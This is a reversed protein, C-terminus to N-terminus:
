STIEILEYETSGIGIEVAHKLQKMGDREPHVERFIDKGAAEITLDLCAKDLAVPDVSALIGIDPAIRPDDQALCDCEKTIKIAFNIHISEGKRNDLVAKAYETMKEQITDGGAEWMVGMAGTPCAAICSACGICKEADIRAKEKIIVIADAPCVKVCEGCGICTDVFVTPTMDTHQELKGERTACGMGINKLVGGFGTMMHGKFHAVSILVDADTFLRVVKATKVFKQNIAFRAANDEKKDDPIFVEAGAKRPTFGHKRALKLHDSCNMRKGKYLTNTDSLAVEVGAEALKESLVKVCDPKVFGTNGEEGFHIKIVAKDGNSIGDLIGSKDLLKSFKNKISAPKDKDATKIFYVKSKM